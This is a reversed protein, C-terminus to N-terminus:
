TSEGGALFSKIENHREQNLRYHIRSDEGKYELVMGRGVLEELVEKVMEKQWKIEQELLWWDVIGDITDRAKPHDLLYALIEHAIDLKQM